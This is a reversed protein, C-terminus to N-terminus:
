YFSACCKALYQRIDKIVTDTKQCILAPSRDGQFIKGSPTNAAATKTTLETLKTPKTSTDAM